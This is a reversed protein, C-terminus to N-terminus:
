FNLDNVMESFLKGREKSNKFMDFSACAPSLVINDGPKALSFVRDIIGKFDGTEDRKLILQQGGATEIAKQIRPGEAGYLYVRTHTQVIQKAMESFDSHKTSGGLMLILEDQPFQNMAVWTSEPTTCSSDNYFKIGNIERVFELRQPMGPFISLVDKILTPDVGHIMGVAVAFALNDPHTKVKLDNRRLIQTTHGDFNAILRSSPMEGENMNEWMAWHEGEKKGVWFIKGKAAQALKASNEDNANLICWDDQDQHATLNAKANIYDELNDHWDLHNPSINLIGSIHPSLKLDAFQFSSGEMLIPWTPHDLARQLVPQRDNGGVVIEGGYHKTLIADIMGTTTTKGNSGTIATMRERGVELAMETMSTVSVGQDKAELIGPLKYYVGPSRIITKFETLNEFANPGVKKKVEAPIDPNDKQDCITIDSIGQNKAFELAAKGEEGFGLIALPSLLPHIM